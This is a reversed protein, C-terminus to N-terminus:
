LHEKADFRLQRQFDESASGGATAAVQEEAVDRERDFCRLEDALTNVAEEFCAGCSWLGAEPAYALYLGSVKCTLTYLNPTMVIITKPRRPSGLM